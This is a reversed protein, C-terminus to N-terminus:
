IRVGHPLICETPEESGPIWEMAGGDCVYGSLCKYEDASVMLLAHRQPACVPCHWLAASTSAALPKGLYHEVLERLDTMTMEYNHYGM